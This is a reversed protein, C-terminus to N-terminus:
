RVFRKTKAVRAIKIVKPHGTQQRQRSILCLPYEYTLRLYKWIHPIQEKM